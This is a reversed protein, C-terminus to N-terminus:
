LLGLYRLLEALDPEVDAAQRVSAITIRKALDSRSMGKKYTPWEKAIAAEARPTDPPRHTAKNPLHRLLVAEFCSEQWVITINNEAAM